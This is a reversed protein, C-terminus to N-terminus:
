KRPSVSLSSLQEKLCPRSSTSGFCTTLPTNPTKFVALELLEVILSLPESYQTKVIDTKWSQTCWFAGVSTETNWNWVIEVTYLLGKYPLHRGAILSLDPSLSLRGHQSMWINLGGVFVAQRSVHTWDGQVCWQSTDLVGIQDSICQEVEAKGHVWVTTYVLSRKLRRPSRKEDKNNFMVLTTQKRCLLTFTFITQM